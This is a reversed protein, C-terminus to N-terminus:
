ANHCADVTSYIDNHIGTLIIQVVEGEADLLDQIKTRITEYTEMETRESALMPLRDKSGAEMIAQQTANTAM